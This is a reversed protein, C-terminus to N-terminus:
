PILTTTTGNVPSGANLHWYKENSDGAGYWSTTERTAEWVNSDDFTMGSGYNAVPGYHFYGSFVNNIYAGTINGEVAEGSNNSNVTYVGGSMYNHDLILNTLSGTQAGIQVAANSVSDDKPIRTVGDGGLVPVTGPLLAMLTNDQVLVSDGATVQVCDAHSGAAVKMDYVCNNTVTGDDGPLLADSVNHVLCHDATMGSGGGIGIGTQDNLNEDSSGIVECYSVTMDNALWVRDGDVFISQNGDVVAEGGTLVGSTQVSRIRCHQITVNNHRVTINGRIDLGEIVQGPSTTTLNGFYPTLDGYEWGAGTLGSTRPNPFGSPIVLGSPFTYTTAATITVASTPASEPSDGSSNTAILTVTYDVGDTLGTVLSDTDYSTAVVTTVVTPNGDVRVTITYRTIDSSGGNAPATWSVYLTGTTPSMAFVDGPPDPSEDDNPAGSLFRWQNLIRKKVITM